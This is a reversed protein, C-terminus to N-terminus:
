RRDDHHDFDHHDDHYGHDRDDHVICGTLMHAGFMCILLMLMWRFSRKIRDSM